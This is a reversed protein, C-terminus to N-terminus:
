VAAGVGSRRAPAAFFNGKWLRFWTFDLGLGPRSEHPLGGTVQWQYDCTGFGETADKAYRTDIQVTGFARNDVEGCEGGPIRENSRELAEDLGGEFAKM